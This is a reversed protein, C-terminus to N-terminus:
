AVALLVIQSCRTSAPEDGINDLIGGMKEAEPIHRPFTECM